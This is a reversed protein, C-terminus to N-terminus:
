WGRVACTDGRFQLETSLDDIMHKSMQGDEVRTIWGQPWNSVDRSAKNLERQEDNCVTWFDLICKEGVKLHSSAM